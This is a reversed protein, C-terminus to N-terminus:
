KLIKGECTGGNMCGPPQQYRCAQIECRPGFFNASINRKIECVCRFFNQNYIKRAPHTECDGEDTCGFCAENTACNDKLTPRLILRKDYTIVPGIVIDLSVGVLALIALLREQSKLLM